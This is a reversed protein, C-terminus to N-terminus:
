VPDRDLVLHTAGRLFEEERDLLNRGERKMWEGRPNVVIGGVDVARSKVHMVLFVLYRVTGRIGLAEVAFFDATYLTESYAKLFAKWTRKKEREPAPELGEESLINAVTTRSVEIKRGTRLADRLKTYGWSPNETAMKVIM